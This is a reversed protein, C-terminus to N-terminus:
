PADEPREARVGADAAAGAARHIRAPIAAITSFGRVDQGSWLKPMEGYVGAEAGALTFPSRVGVVAFRGSGLEVRAEGTVREQSHDILAEIDRLAPEFAMGEHLMKGYFDALHDKWFRQWATTTLKELERHAQILVLAAGAEFAIRGKIGLVTDGLHIGLGVGHRRCRDGLKAVLDAGSLRQGEMAVPVGKEFALTVEEDSAAARAGLAQAYVEQPICRWPDHTVGGGITAGWLGANISYERASPPIDVGREKLFRFEEDRSLREDRIPTVVEVGPLLVHFAVDFRVQDNGAGTSGHAVATAGVERVKDAVCEAQVVREAAVSLPYVQGRLVNGKILYSAYREFVRQRGDVTFHQAVGLARARKEIAELEAPAFGGTDVTVTVVDMGRRERLFPICYSTDLGGSYALVVTKTKTM